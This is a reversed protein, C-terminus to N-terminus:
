SLSQNQVQLDRLLGNRMDYVWGHIKPYGHKLFTERFPATRSVQRCQEEVHLEVLRDSRKGPDDIMELETAHKGGVRRIHNLWPDLPGKKDPELSAEVGGCGYHGCVVVHQVNLHKIAFTLVSMTNQDEPDVVNAINRHVFMEGPASGTILEPNVRSDSCGIFLYDPHQGAALRSFFSKDTLRKKEAWLRNYEFIQQYSPM